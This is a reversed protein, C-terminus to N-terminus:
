LPPHNIKDQQRNYRQPSFPQLRMRNFWDATCMLRRDRGIRLTGPSNGFIWRALKNCHYGVAKKMGVFYGHKIAGCVACSPAITQMWASTPEPVEIEEVQPKDIVVLRTKVGTPRESELFAGDPLEEASGVEFLWERFEQCVKERGFFAHECMIAVIRGGAKLNAYAHRVHRIDQNESFPPNMLIRDFQWGKHELCDPPDLLTHGKLKLIDRLKYAAETVELYTDPHADRVADAINGWGASPEWVTMGSEIEAQDLMMDVVSDPTPFFDNFKLGMLSQKIEKIRDKDTKQGAAGVELTAIADIAREWAQPTNIGAKEQAKWEKLRDSITQIYFAKKETALKLLAELQVVELQGHIDAQHRDMRRRLVDLLKRPVASNPKGKTYQDLDGLEYEGVYLRTPKHGYVLEEVLARTTVGRLIAPLTDADWAEALARLKAQLLQLSRGDERQSAAERSRKATNELRDALKHAIQKDLGDAIKRFAAAPSKIPQTTAVAPLPIASDTPEVSDPKSWAKVKPAKEQTIQCLAALPAPLQVGVFYWQVRKNSWVAHEKLVDRHYATEGTIWWWIRDGSEVRHAKLAKHTM